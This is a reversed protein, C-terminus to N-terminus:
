SLHLVKTWAGTSDVNDATFTGTVASLAHSFINRFGEALSSDSQTGTAAAGPDATKNTAPAQIAAGALAFAALLFRQEHSTLSPAFRDLKTAISEIDQQSLHVDIQM